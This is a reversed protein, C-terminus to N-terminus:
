SGVLFTGQVSEITVDGNSNVKMLVVAKNIANGDPGFSIQGTVGQIAQSGTIKTLAQQLNSPSFVKKGGTLGVLAIKCGSLLALMADYSFMTDDNAMAYGPTGAHEKYPDFDQSYDTFFAPDKTSLNLFNWTNGYILDTFHLRNFEGYASLPYHGSLENAGMVQLNAFPGSTPLDTLLAGVDTAYGAFYILDPTHKLADQLLGRLMEPHGVRYPEIAVISNGDATFQQEFDNAVEKSYLDAPDVFLAAQKALLTHEVYQVGVFVQRKNSPIVRFFYPSIGTLFDFYATPSIVPIHAAALVQTADESAGSFPWGMVGAITKDAHAAQVIQKAVMAVYLSDSGSNAILLRVQVSGPLKSGDNYEKQAVYAGQLDNRGEGVLDAKGTLLTGVVLTIYTHGSALVRQDELYILAEADNPEKQVAQQLLRNTGSINHAKLNDAAQHKLTGDLRNTDFAFIGDSIGIDEGDPAKSIGIGNGVPPGPVPKKLFVFYATLTGAIILIVLTILLLNRRLERGRQAEQPRGPDTGTPHYVSPISQATTTSQQQDRAPENVTNPLPRITTPTSTPPASTSVSPLSPTPSYAQELANAFAQVSAFRQKPDKALATMVVDEVIPSITPVKERLPIPAVFIHQSVMESLSRQFPRDGSLWEYVVVGLSYQDSALRAKGQIQEPSMYAVTGAIQQIGELLTSQAILAIGFDSLLVANRRGLLMNEPKVDRHIIKQNHAYQLADAVQKVYGIITTLPLPTGKPHRQRLTGNPAYDMVLFPIGEWVKFDFIRVIHPHVLSAIIQAENLFGELEDGAAKSQLVKVAAESKLHVHAGLYVEAFSGQGLLRVLRYSGLQQGVRNVM